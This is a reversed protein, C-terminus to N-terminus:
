HKWTTWHRYIDLHVLIEEEPNGRLVEGSPEIELLDEETVFPDKKGVVALINGNELKISITTHGDSALMSTNIARVAGFNKKWKTWIDGEEGLVSSDNDSKYSKDDYLEQLLVQIKAKIIDMAVMNKGGEPVIIDAFRKTPEVFQIHMPRVTELYQKIVSDLTRGRKEVDRKLRRLIRVDADTDVYIKIDFLNRIREDYFLLIGEVIIV